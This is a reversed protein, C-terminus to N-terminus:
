PNIECLTDETSYDDLASCNTPPSVLATLERVSGICHLQPTAYPKKEM